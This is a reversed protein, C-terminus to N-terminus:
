IIQDIGAKFRRLAILRARVAEAESKPVAQLLRDPHIIDLGDEIEANSLVELAARKVMALTIAKPLVMWYSQNGYIFFGLREMLGLERSLFINDYSYLDLIAVHHRYELEGLIELAFAALDPDGEAHLLGVDDAFERDSLAQTWFSQAQAARFLWAAVFRCDPEDSMELLVHPNGTVM